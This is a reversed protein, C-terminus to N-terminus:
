FQFYIFETNTAATGSVSAFFLMCVICAILLCQVIWPQEVFVKYCKREEKRFYQIILFLTGLLAIGVTKAISGGILLINEDFISVPYFFLMNKIFHLSGVVSPMRFFVWTITILIFVIFRRLIGISIPIDEITRNMRKNHSGSVLGLMNESLQLIGNIGGWMIYHWSTGHWAGSILFVIMINIYQRMKGRRSGGLPIYIYELFWSNLSKHWRKWFETVSQSLYPNDFNKGVNIGFLKAAGRAIDSYSSFDSYIQLSFCIAAILYYIGDYAMYNDFIRDVILALQNSVFLKEFFGYLIFLTGKLINDFKFSATCELQPILERSKQIPGSSITPFFSVFAAYKWFNKVIGIKNNKVDGLYTTSQFIYFSLGLPTLISFNATIGKGIGLQQIILSMNELVFGTYKYLFLIALNAFFFLWFTGKKKAICIGGLYTIVTALMLILLMKVDAWGYFVWSASLICLYRYKPKLLYYILVVIMIFIIFIYSLFFM